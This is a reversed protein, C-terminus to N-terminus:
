CSKPIDWPLLLNKGWFVPLTSPPLLTHRRVEVPLCSEFKVQELVLNWM